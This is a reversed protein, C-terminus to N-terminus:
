RQRAPESGGACRDRRIGTRAARALARRHGAWRLDSSARWCPRGRGPPAAGATGTVPAAPRPSCRSRQRRCTRPCARRQACRRSATPTGLTGNSRTPGSSGGGHGSRTAAASARTSTWSHRVTRVLQAPGSTTATVGQRGSPSPEGEDGPARGRDGGPKGAKGGIPVTAAIGRRGDRGGDGPVRDVTGMQPFALLRQAVLQVARVLQCPAGLDKALDRATCTLESSAAGCRPATASPWHRARHHRAM